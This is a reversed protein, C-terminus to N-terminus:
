QLTGRFFLLLGTGKDMARTVILVSRFQKTASFGCFIADPLEAQSMEGSAFRCGM